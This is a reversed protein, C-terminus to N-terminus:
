CRRGGGFCRALSASYTWPGTEEPDRTFMIDIFHLTALFGYAPIGFDVMGLGTQGYIFPWSVMMLIGTAGAFQRMFGRQNRNIYLWGVILSLFIQLNLAEKGFDAWPGKVPEYYKVELGLKTFLRLVPDDKANKSWWSWDNATPTRFRFDSLTPVRLTKWTSLPVETIGGHALRVM